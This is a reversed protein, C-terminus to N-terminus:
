GAEEEERQKRAIWWSALGLVIAVSALFTWFWAFGRADAIQTADQLEGLSTFGNIAFGLSVVAFVAAIIMTAQLSIRM